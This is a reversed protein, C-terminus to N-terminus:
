WSNFMNFIAHMTNCTDQGTSLPTICLTSNRKFGSIRHFLSPLKYWIIVLTSLCTLISSAANNKGLGVSLLLKYNKYLSCSVLSLSSVVCVVATWSTLRRKCIYIKTCNLLPMVLCQFILTCNPPLIFNQSPLGYKRKKKKPFTRTAHLFNFTPNRIM